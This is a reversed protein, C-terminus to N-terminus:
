MRPFTSSIRWIAIESGAVHLDKRFKLKYKTLKFKLNTGRAVRILKVFFFTYRRLSLLFGQPPVVRTSLVVPNVSEIRRQLKDEGIPIIHQSWNTPLRVCLDWSRNVAPVSGEQSFIILTTSFLNTQIIFLPYCKVYM